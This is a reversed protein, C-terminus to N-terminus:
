ESLGADRIVTNDGLDNVPVANGHRVLEEIAAGIRAHDWASNKRLVNSTLAVLYRRQETDPKAPSEIIVVSNMANEVNGMYKGCRYGVEEKCRYLSGSKFYIAAKALEPPYAYRYRRKTMYLFRKMELSSWEDVLRGQELRLFFRALEKPTASSGGIGPIRQKGTRTWFNGVRLYEPNLSAAFLADNIIEQALNKQTQRPTLHFYDAEQQPSPPYAAGFVRLLMAEKWITSGAANASASIMHDLWESLTFAEGPQIIASTMIGTSADFRPVKHEDSIVWNEATIIHERLLRQRDEIAPFAHRLGDFLALMCLIKGVSGPAQARNERLGAWRINHSDTFDILAISYSPDRDSFMAKLAAQLSPDQTTANIDWDTQQLLHLQIDEIGLLAGSPLKAIRPQEQALRSGELRRIGSDTGNLPYALLDVSLYCCALMTVLLKSM